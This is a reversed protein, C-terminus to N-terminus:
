RHSCAHPPRSVKPVPEPAKAPPVDQEDEPFGFEELADLRPLSGQRPTPSRATQRKARRRKQMRPDYQVTKYVIAGSRARTAQTRTHRTLHSHPGFFVYSTEPKKVMTLPVCAPSLLPPALHPDLREPHMGRQGANLGHRHAVREVGTNTVCDHPRM